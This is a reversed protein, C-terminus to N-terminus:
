SSSVPLLLFAVLVLEKVGKERARQTHCAGPLLSVGDTEREREPREGHQQPPPSCSAWFLLAFAANLFHRREMAWLLYPWAERSWSIVQEIFVAERLIAVATGTTKTSQTGLYQDKEAFSILVRKASPTSGLSNSRAGHTSLMAGASRAPLLGDTPRSSPSPPEM